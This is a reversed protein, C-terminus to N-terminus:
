PCFFSGSANDEIKQLKYNYDFFFFTVAGMSNPLDLFYLLASSVMSLVGVLRKGMKSVKVYEESM